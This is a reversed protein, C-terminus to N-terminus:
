LNEIHTWRTVHYVDARYDSEDCVKQLMDADLASVAAVICEKIEELNRPLSLTFVLDKVYGV